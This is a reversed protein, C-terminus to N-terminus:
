IFRQIARYGLGDVLPIRRMRTLLAITNIVHLLKFSYGNFVPEGHSSTISLAYKLLPLNGPM